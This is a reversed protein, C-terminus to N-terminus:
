LRDFLSTHISMIAIITDCYLHRTFSHPVEYSNYVHRNSCNELLSRSFRLAAIVLDRPADPKKLENDLIDLVSSWQFLDGQHIIIFLILFNLVDM